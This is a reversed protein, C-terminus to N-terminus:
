TEDIGVERWARTGGPGPRDLVVIGAYGAERALVRAADLHRGFHEPAHADASFTIPVDLRRLERLIPLSPYPSDLAGRNMAGVNIEVVIDRGRLLSAAEMAAALYEPSDEDFYRGDANNKRVVDFHGLIDFGGSEILAAVDRYYERWIARGDRGSREFLGAFEAAPCDVTCLEAGPLRVFHVSGIRYDLGHQDFIADGPTRTGELWDIELGLLIDLPPDENAYRAALGRIEAVYAGLRDSPMNWETPFPLHAHSSFGLASYGAARAARAMDAASAAGDCYLCHTHYNARM